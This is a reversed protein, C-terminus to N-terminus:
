YFSALQDLTVELGSQKLADKRMTLLTDLMKRVDSKRGHHLKRHCLPCVPVINAITDLKKKFRYQKVVPILHHAEMYPKGNPKIFTEHPNNDTSFICSYHNAKIAKKGLNPNTSPRNTHINSGDASGTYDEATYSDPEVEIDDDVEDVLQQYVADALDEEGFIMTNTDVSNEISAMATKITVLDQDELNNLIGSPISYKGEYFSKPIGIAYLVDDYDKLFILLDHLYLGKRLDIFERGDSRIKSIQVQDQHGVSYKLNTCTEKLGLDTCSSTDLKNLSIINTLSVIVKRQESHNSTMSSFNKFFFERAPGTIHIHTQNGKTSLSRNQPILSVGPLNVILGCKFKNAKFFSKAPPGFGISEFYNNILALLLANTINEM